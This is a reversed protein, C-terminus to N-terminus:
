ATAEKSVSDPQMWDIEPPMEIGGRLRELMGKRTLGIRHGQPVTAFISMTFLPMLLRAIRIGIPGIKARLYAVHYVEDIWIERLLARVRGEVEPEESFLDVRDRLLKFVESGLVEGAFIPIWRMRDPLYMMAHIMLRQLWDPILREPEVGCSRCIEDLIRSHYREEVMLNLYLWNAKRRPRRRFANLEIEVGYAESINGKAAAVLFVTRPSLPPSATRRMHEYYGTEDLDGQWRVPKAELDRFFAERKSLTFAETDCEGDRERLFRGYADLHRTREDATLIRFPDFSKSVRPKPSM